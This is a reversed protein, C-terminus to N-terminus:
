GIKVPTIMVMGQQYRRKLSHGGCSFDQGVKVSLAASQIEVV